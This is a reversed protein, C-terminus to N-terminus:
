PRGAPTPQRFAALEGASAAPSLSPLPRPVLPPRNPCKAPVTTAGALPAGAALSLPRRPQQEPSPLSPQGSPPDARRPSATAAKYPSESEPVPLVSSPAARAPWYLPPCARGALTGRGRSAARAVRPGLHKPTRAQRPLTHTRPLRPRPRHAAGPPAPQRRQAAQRPRRRSPRRVVDAASITERLGQEFV